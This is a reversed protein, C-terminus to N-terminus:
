ARHSKVRISRRCPRTEVATVGFRASLSRRRERAVRDDRDRNEFSEGAV